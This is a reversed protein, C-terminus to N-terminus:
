IVDVEVYWFRTPPMCAATSQYCTPGESASVRAHGAKQGIFSATVHDSSPSASASERRLTSADSTNPASAWYWGTSAQLQVVLHQGVRLTVTKGSDDQTVTVTDGPNPPVTSPTTSPPKTGPYVVRPPLSHATGSPAITASTTKTAGPKDRSTTSGPDGNPSASAGSQSDAANLRAPRPASATSSLAAVAIAVVVLSAASGALAAVRTRRRRAEKAMLAAAPPAAPHFADARRHLEDHIDDDFSM